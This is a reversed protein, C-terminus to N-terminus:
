AVSKQGSCCCLIPILVLAISAILVKVNSLHWKFVDWTAQDFVVAFIQLFLVIIWMISLCGITMLAWGRNYLVHAVIDVKTHPDIMPKFCEQMVSFAIALKIKQEAMVEKDMASLELDEQSRLLTWSYGDELPNSTGVLRRLDRFIQVLMVRM